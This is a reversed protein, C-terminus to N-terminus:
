LIETVWGLTYCANAALAYAVVGIMIGVPEEVDEGPKVLRDGVLLVVLITVLGAALVALNFVIRRKEWCFIADRARSM